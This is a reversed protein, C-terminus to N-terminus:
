FTFSLVLLLSVPILIIGAAFGLSAKSYDPPLPPNPGPKLGATSGSTAPTTPTNNPNNNTTTPTTGPTSGGATSCIEM